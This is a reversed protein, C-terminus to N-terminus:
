SEDRSFCVICIDDSQPAGQVFSRVESLLARIVHPPKPGADMVAKRVAETGFHKSDRNLAENVGDTYCLVTQGPKIIFSQEAYKTSVDLGLPLSAYEIPFWECMQKARTRLIAPPHGANVWTVQHTRPDLIFLVLTVFSDNDMAHCVQRNMSSVADAASGSGALCFRVDSCLRAMLMAASMGKGAVDGQVVAIRGDPLPVYDFYDGAVHDAARYHHSFEYNAVQPPESPLFHLQVDKALMAERRRWDLEMLSEHMRAFEVAQGALLAVTALVELDSKHFPRKANGTELHIVGSATRSPGMLPACMISRIPEDFISGQAEELVDEDLEGSLFATGDLMVRQAVKGGIPSITDSVDGSHKIATPILEDSGSTSQLIYGRQSQPFIQFLAELINPLMSEIDLTSGLSQSIRLVARLKEASRDRALDDSEHDVDLESVIEQSSSSSPEAEAALDAESMKQITALDVDRLSGEDFLFVTDFIHIRDGDNLQTRRHIRHGNVGTGNVSRLDEVYFGDSEKVIRAHRRSVTRVPIVIQNTPDRGIVMERGYWEIIKGSNTGSIIRLTPM